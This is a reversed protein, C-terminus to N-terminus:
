SLDIILNELSGALSPRPLFPGVATDWLCLYVDLVAIRFRIFFGNSIHRGDIVRGAAQV